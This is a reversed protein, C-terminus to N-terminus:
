AFLVALVCSRYRLAQVGLDKGLKFAKGQREAPRKDNSFSQFHSPQRFGTRGSDQWPTGEGGMKEIVWDALRKGHETAGDPRYFFEAIHADQFARAYFRTCLERIVDGGGISRLLEATDVTGINPDQDLLKAAQLPNEPDDDRVEPGMLSSEKKGPFVCLPVQKHLFAWHYSHKKHSHFPCRTIERVDTTLDSLPCEINGQILVGGNADVPLHKGSGQSKGGPVIDVSSVQDASSACPLFKVISM